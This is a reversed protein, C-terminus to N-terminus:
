AHTTRGQTRGQAERVAGDALDGWNKAAM